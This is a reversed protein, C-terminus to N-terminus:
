FLFISVENTNTSHLCIENLNEINGGVAGEENELSENNCIQDAEALEENGPLNNEQNIVVDLIETVNNSSSNNIFSDNDHDDDDDEDADHNKDDSISSSNITDGTTNSLSCNVGTENKLFNNNLYNEYNLLFENISSKNFNNLNKTLDEQNIKKLM